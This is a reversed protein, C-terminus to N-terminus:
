DFIEIDTVNGCAGRQRREELEREIEAIAALQEDRSMEFPQKDELDDDWRDFFGGARLLSTAATARAPASANRDCTIDLLSQYIVDAGEEQIKRRLRKRAASGTM